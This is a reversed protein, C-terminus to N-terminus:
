RENEGESVKANPTLSDQHQTLAQKGEDTIEYFIVGPRGGWRRMLGRKVLSPISPSTM